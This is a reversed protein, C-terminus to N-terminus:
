VVRAQRGTRGKKIMGWERVKRQNKMRASTILYFM